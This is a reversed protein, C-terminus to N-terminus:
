AYMKKLVSPDTEVFVAEADELYDIKCFCVKGNDVICVEGKRQKSDEKSSPDGGLELIKEVQGTTLNLANKIWNKDQYAQKFVFKTAAQKLLAETEPMRNYDTLAQTATWLSVFRKRSTRSTHDLSQVAFLYKFNEHVEDVIVALKETKKPNIANKKIFQELVFSLAIKRAIPKEDEPLCSIDINTFSSKTKLHITSQGDYFNRIGYISIIKKKCRSCYPNNTVEKKEYFTLCDPCYHLEKIRDKLTDLIIRYAKRHEPIKNEKNKRLVKKYFDTLTPLKKKVQGSTVIGNVFGKGQEYLSSPIGDKINVDRYLETIIDVVIREMFVSVDFEINDKVGQILMLLNSTAEVIKDQLRLVAYEGKLESWEIEEDMEFPNIIISDNNGIQYNVGCQIDALMSYEGRDGKHQSDICVFRYGNKSIFRSALIKITASKGTGTMGSFSMNYGNHSADYCDFAIPRWNYMNRGIVIGHEHYFDNQIHNFITSISLKDMNHRKIGASRITGYSSHYMTNFPLNSLYAEPQIAYCSTLGIQREKALNRFTDSADNLEELSDAFITFLFGVRYFTNEGTEIKRAWSETESLKGRLRRLSNSNGSKQATIMNTEINIVTKDLMNAAAGEAMPEIFVSSTVREFNFLTAFTVGFVTRKPMLDITFSRTYIERGNDDIILYSLPNPNVGDPALLKRIKSIGESEIDTEKKYTLYNHNKEPEERKKKVYFLITALVSLVTSAVILLFFLLWHESIRQLLCSM